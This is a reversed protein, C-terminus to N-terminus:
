TVRKPPEVRLRGALGSQAHPRGLLANAAHDLLDVVQGVQLRSPLFGRLLHLLQVTRQAAPRVVELYAGDALRIARQVVVGCQPQTPPQAVLVLDPSALAPAIWERVKVPVEPKMTQRCSPAGLRPRLRSTEDSLRIRSIQM